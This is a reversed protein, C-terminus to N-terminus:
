KTTKEEPFAGKIQGTFFAANDQNRYGSIEGLELEIWLNSGLAVETGVSLIYTHGAAQGDPKTEAFLGQFFVMRKPNGCRYKAGFSLSDRDSYPLFRNGTPAAESTRYRAHLIIQSNEQFCANEFGRSWSTWLGLGNWGFSDGGGKRDIWNPAIGVDMASKNWDRKLSDARCKAAVAEFYDPQNTGAQGAGRKREEPAPAFEPVVGSEANELCAVLDKDLRLDGDDWITWHIAAGMRRAPDDSGAAKAYALSLQVRSLDQERKSDQYQRLTLEKGHLLLYPSMDVALATQPNGNVDVGEAFSVAVERPAAPRIIDPTVGIM